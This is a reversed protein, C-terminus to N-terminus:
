RGRRLNPAHRGCALGGEEEHKRSAYAAPLPSGHAAGTQPPIFYLLSCLQPPAQNVNREGEICTRSQFATRACRCCCPKKHTENPLRLLVVLDVLQEICLHHACFLRRLDEICLPKSLFVRQWLVHRLVRILSTGVPVLLLICYCRWRCRRWVLLLFLIHWALGAVCVGEKRM